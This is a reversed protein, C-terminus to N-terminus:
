TRFIPPEDIVGGQSIYQSKFVAIWQEWREVSCEQFKQSGIFRSLYSVSYDYPYNEMVNIKGDLWAENIMHNFRIFDFNLIKFPNIASTIYSTDVKQTLTKAYRDGPHNQEWRFANFLQDGEDVRDHSDGWAALWYEKQFFASSVTYLTYFPLLFRPSLLGSKQLLSRIRLKNKLLLSAVSKNKLPLRPIIEEVEESLRTKKGTVIGENGNWFLKLIVIRQDQMIKEFHPIILPEKLWADEELLLFFPSATEIETKWFSAPINKFHYPIRGALHDEIAKSKQQWTHSKRISVHPFLKQIKELFVQPTGDDLIRITYDGKINKELSRVCRELYYPRNFSKIVVDMAILFIFYFFGSREPNKNRV